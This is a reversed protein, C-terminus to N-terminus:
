FPSPRAGNALLTLLFNPIKSRRAPLLNAAAITMELVSPARPELTSRLIIALRSSSSVESKLYQLAQTLM